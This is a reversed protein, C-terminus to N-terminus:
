EGEEEDLLQFYDGNLDIMAELVTLENLARLVGSSDFRFSVTAGLNFEGLAEIELFASLEDDSPTWAM